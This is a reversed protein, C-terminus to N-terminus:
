VLRLQSLPDEALDALEFGPEEGFQHLLRARLAAYRRAAESRRGLRLSSRIMERQSELDYPELQALRSLHDHAADHDGSGQELGALVRLASAALERLRDREQLAWVDYPDEAFLDGGYLSLAADLEAAAVELDGRRFAALGAKAGREFEDIDIVVKNRDLTYGGQRAVIFSSPRRKRRDPELRDRLEHVYHRVSGLASRGSDPWISTALEEVTVVRHRNCILYKFVQGPRQELWAGGIPGERSEVRTRGLAVLHLQPGRTWHPKTRRRRDKPDAARLQVVIRSADAGLPAITLWVAKGGDAPLTLRVEPLRRRRSRALETLCLGALPSGQRGCGFLNCCCAANGFAEGLLGEAEYNAAVIAGSADLVLIGYPFLRFVEDALVGDGATTNLAEQGTAFGGPRGRTRGNESDMPGRATTYTWKTCRIPSGTL